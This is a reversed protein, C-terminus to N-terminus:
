PTQWSNGNYKTFRRGDYWEDGFRPQRGLLVTLRPLVQTDYFNSDDSMLDHDINLYILKHTRTGAHGYRDIAVSPSIGSVAELDIQEGLGEDSETIFRNNDGPNSPTSRRGVGTTGKLANFQGNTPVNKSNRSLGSAIRTSSKTFVTDTISGLTLFSEFFDQIVQTPGDWLSSLKVHGTGFGQVFSSSDSGVYGLVNNLPIIPLVDNITDTISLTLAAFEVAEPITKNNHTSFYLQITSSTEDIRRIKSIWVPYFANTIDGTPQDSGPAILDFESFMGTPISIGDVSILNANTDFPYGLANLINQNDVVQSPISNVASDTILGTGHSLSVSNFDGTISTSGAPSDAIEYVSPTIYYGNVDTEPSTPPALVDFFDAIEQDTYDLTSFTIQGNFQNSESPSLVDLADTTVKNLRMLQYSLDSDITYDAYFIAYETDSNNRSASFVFRLQGTYGYGGTGNLDNSGSRRVIKVLRFNHWAAPCSIHMDRIIETPLDINTINSVVIPQILFPYYIRSGVSTSLTDIAKAIVMQRIEIDKLPRNLIAYHVPELPGLYRVSLTQDGGSLSSFITGPIKTPIINYNITTM